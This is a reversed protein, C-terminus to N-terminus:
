VFLMIIVCPKCNLLFLKYLIITNRSKRKPSLKHYMSIEKKIEKIQGKIRTTKIRNVNEKTKKGNAEKMGYGNVSLM